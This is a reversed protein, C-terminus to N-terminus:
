GRKHRSKVAEFMVLAGAVSANLSDIKGYLPIRVLVDCKEKVLRRIGRGENGVVIALPGTYDAEDYPRDGETATGFVWVGLQKFEDLAHAINSVRAIPIHMSAGASTKAITQGITPSHHKSVVVGHMGACEATRILAGVNHPDELEDLVLVFVPESRRRAIEVLDGVEVHAVASIMAAVGQTVSEEGFERFRRKATQTVPIGRQKALAYIRDIAGGRLGFQILIKEIPTGSKLAEIVPQRGFIIESHENTAPL